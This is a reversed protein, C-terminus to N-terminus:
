RLFFSSSSLSALACCCCSFDRLEGSGEGCFRGILIDGERGGETVLGGGGAGMSVRVGGGSSEKADRVMFFLSFVLAGDVGFLDEDLEAGLRDSFSNVFSLASFLIVCRCDDDVGDDDCRSLKNSIVFNFFSESEKTGDVGSDVAAFFRSPAEGEEVILRGTRCCSGKVLLAM